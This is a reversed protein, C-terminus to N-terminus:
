RAARPSRRAMAAAGATRRARSRAAAAATVAAGHPARPRRQSRDSPRRSWRARSSHGWSRPCSLAGASGRPPSASPCSRWSACSTAQTGARTARRPAHRTVALCSPRSAACPARALTCRASVRRLCGVEHARAATAAARRAGRGVGRRARRRAKGARAARAARAPHGGRQGRGGGGGGAARRRRGRRRRRRRRGRPARVRADAPARPTPADTNRGRSRGHWRSLVCGGGPPPRLGCAPMAAAPAGRGCVCCRPFARPFARPRARVLAFMLGVSCDQLILTGITIQGYATASSRTAELCKVVVSTSSM